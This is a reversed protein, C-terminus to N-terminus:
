IGTRNMSQFEKHLEFRRKIFGSPIDLAASLKRATTDDMDFCLPNDRIVLLIQRNFLIDGVTPKGECMKEAIRYIDQGTIEMTEEIIEWLSTSYDPDFPYGNGTSM